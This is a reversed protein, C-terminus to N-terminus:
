GSDSSSSSSSSSRRRRPRTWPRRQQCPPCPPEVIPPEYCACGTYHFTLRVQGDAGDAAAVAAVTPGGAGGGGGGPFVGTQAGIGPGAGTGGSGGSPAAGGNGGVSDLGLNSPIGVTGHGGDIAVELQTKTSLTSSVVGGDGGNGSASIGGTGGGATLTDTGKNWSVTTAGGATGNTGLVTGGLGGAGVTITFTDGPCVPRTVVKAYAGGGGGGGGWPNLAVLAAGGGGAGLAEIEVTTCCCCNKANLVAPPTSPMTFTTTGVAFNSVVYTVSDGGRSCAPLPSSCNAKYNPRRSCSGNNCQMEFYGTGCKRRSPCRKRPKCCKKKKKECVPVSCSRSCLAAIIAVVVALIVVGAVAGLLIGLGSWGARRRHLGFFGATRAAPTAAPVPANAPPAVAGGDKLVQESSESM